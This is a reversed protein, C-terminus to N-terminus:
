PQWAAKFIPDDSLKLAMELDASQKESNGLRSHADARSAFANWDNGDVLLIRDLYWIATQWNGARQCAVVRHRYWNTLKDVDSDLLASAADYDAEAQEFDGRESWTRARRAFLQWDLPRSSPGTDDPAEMIMRSLHWHAGFWDEDQEADRCRAEHLDRSPTAPVLAPMGESSAASDAQSLM